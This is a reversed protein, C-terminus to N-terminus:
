KHWRKSLQPCSPCPPPCGDNKITNAANANIILTKCCSADGGCMSPEMHYQRWHAGWMICAEKPGGWDEVWVTYQDTWGNKCLEGCSLHGWIKCHAARGGRLIAEEWPLDPDWRICPEKTGVSEETWVADVNIWGNRCPECTHCVSLGDSWAVRDTVVPRM